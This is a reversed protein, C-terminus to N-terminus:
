TFGILPGGELGDRSAGTPNIAETVILFIVHTFRSFEEASISDRTNGAFRREVAFGDVRNPTRQAIMKRCPGAAHNDALLRATLFTSQQYESRRTARNLHGSLSRRRSESVPRQATAKYRFLPTGAKM